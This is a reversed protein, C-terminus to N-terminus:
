TNAPFVKVTFGLSCNPMELNPLRAQGREQWESDYVQLKYVLELPDFPM